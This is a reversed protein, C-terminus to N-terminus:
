ELVLHDFIKLADLDRGSQTYATILSTWLINNKYGTQDFVRCAEDINGCKSYMDILASVVFSNQDSGMKMVLAHIQKGQQVVTLAGCADLISTLTHQSLGASESHMKKFLKLANKGQQNHSYASIMTNLVVDDRIICSEFLVVVKDM